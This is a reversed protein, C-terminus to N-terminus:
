MRELLSNGSGIWKLALIVISIIIIIIIIDHLLQYRGDIRWKGCM